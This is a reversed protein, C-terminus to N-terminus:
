LPPVPAEASLEKVLPGLDEVVQLKLRLGRMLLAGTHLAINFFPSATPSIAIISEATHGHADRGWQLLLDRADVTYKSCARWDLVSRVKRGKVVYRAKLAEDFRVTLFKAAEANMEAALTQCVVTATSDFFWVRGVASAFTPPAIFLPQNV